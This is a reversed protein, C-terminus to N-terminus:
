EAMSKKLLLILIPLDKIIINRECILKKRTATWNTTRNKERLYMNLRLGHEEIKHDKQLGQVQQYEQNPEFDNQKAKMGDEVVQNKINDPLFQQAEEDENESDEDNGLITFPNPDQVINQKEVPDTM